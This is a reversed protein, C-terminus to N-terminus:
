DPAPDRQVRSVPYQPLHKNWTKMNFVGCGEVITRQWLGSKPGKLPLKRNLNDTRTLLMANDLSNSAILVYYQIPKQLANTIAWQYIFTDRYKRVLDDDKEGKHFEDLFKKRAKPTANAHDPDKFEIFLTHTPTEVIFDVAKMCHSLGHRADNVKRGQTADPLTIQLSEETLTYTM